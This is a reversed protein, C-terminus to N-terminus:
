DDDDARSGARAIEGTVPDITLLTEQGDKTATVNLHDGEHRLIEIDTYGQAHLRAELESDSLQAAALAQAVIQHNIGARPMMVDTALALGPLVVALLTIRIFPMNEGMSTSWRSKTLHYPWSQPSRCVRQRLRAFRWRSDATEM